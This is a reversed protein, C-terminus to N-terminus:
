KGASRNRHLELEARSVLARAVRARRSYLKYHQTFNQVNNM